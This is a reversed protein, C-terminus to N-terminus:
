SADGPHYHDHIATLTAAMKPGVKDGSVVREPACRLRWYEDVEAPLEITVKVTKRRLFTLGDWGSPRWRVGSSDDIAWGDDDGLRIASVSRIRTHDDATFQDGLLIPQGTNPWTPWEPMTM